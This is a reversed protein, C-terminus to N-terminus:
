APGFIMNPIWLVVQPLFVLIALELLVAGLFPLSAKTYEEPPCKIIGCV